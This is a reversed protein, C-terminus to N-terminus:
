EIHRFYFSIFSGIIYEFILNWGIIFALFEYFRNFNGFFPCINEIEDNFSYLNRNASYIKKSFMELLYNNNM